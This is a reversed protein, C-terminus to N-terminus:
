STEQKKEHGQGQGQGLRKACSRLITELLPNEVKTDEWSCIDYLNKDNYYYTFKNEVKGILQYGCNQLHGAAQSTKMDTDPLSSWRILLLAPRFGSDLLESLISREMAPLDIKLIDVRPAELKLGSEEIFQSVTEELPRIQCSEGSYTTTGKVSSLIGEQVFINKPLVWKKTAAAVFADMDDSTKRTTLADKVQSWLARKASRPEVVLLKCGLMELIDLDCASSAGSGISIFVTQTGKEVFLEWLQSVIPFPDESGGALKISFDSM